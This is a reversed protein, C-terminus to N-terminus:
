NRTRQLIRVGHGELLLSGAEVGSTEGGLLDVLPRKPDPQATAPLPIHVPTSGYNLLVLVSNDGSTRRYALVQEGDPIDLFELSHSRLAPVVHRLAILRRYWSMLGHPDDDWAIPRKEGYPEFAAGVEDGAFLAPLGPLTLLMAAGVHTRGIGYRSIFRRGTDNNNIFRFVLSGAAAHSAAIAARLRRATHPEDAFAAGWAWEGLKDTWDYAADFGHGAYYSDRASAEALLLLDPKIRKLMARWRPWFGPARERPGWAADVRFGDVDFARVWYAFAEIMLRQVEPNDYNLNKLNTWDFYHVAEGDPARQFFDFYPSARTRAATDAFYANQDSVHNPVFDLIVRLGRAHAASVLARLDAASGFTDRLRFHDTVAYGFDGPPAATVPSLWLVTVGLAALADLRATVNRLGDVGFLFPVAGYVVADDVWAPHERALDVAEPRSNRMRFMATSEDRRGQADTVTLTVYYEGDAAPSPLAIARGKAPLGSLPAPNSDRARWAYSVPAAGTAQSPESGAGDLVIATDTVNTSIRAVPADALRVLWHQRAPVGRPEGAKLCTADIANEGAVLTLDASVRGGAPVATIRAAPSMFTVADCADPAVIADIRKNFTWADGGTTAFAVPPAAPRPQQAGCALSVVLALAPVLTPKTRVLLIM